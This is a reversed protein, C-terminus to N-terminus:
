KFQSNAMCFLFFSMELLSFFFPQFLSPSNLSCLLLFMRAYAFWVFPVITEQDSYRLTIEVPILGVKYYVTSTILSFIEIM